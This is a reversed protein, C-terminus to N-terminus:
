KECPFKNNAAPKCSVLHDIRRTSHTLEESRIPSAVLMRVTSDCTASDLFIGLRGGATLDYVKRMMFTLVILVLGLKKVRCQTHRLLKLQLHAISKVTSTAYYSFKASVPNDTCIESGEEYVDYLPFKEEPESGHLRPAM